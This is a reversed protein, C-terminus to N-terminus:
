ARGGDWARGRAGPRTPAQHDDGPEWGSRALARAVARFAHQYGGSSYSYAYRHVKHALADDLLVVTDRGAGREELERYLQQPGGAEGRVAISRFREREYDTMPVRLEGTFLDSM